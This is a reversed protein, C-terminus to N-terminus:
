EAHEAEWKALAVVLLRVSHYHMPATAPQGCRDCRRFDGVHLHPVGRWGAQPDTVVVGLHTM